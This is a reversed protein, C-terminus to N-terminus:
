VWLPLNKIRPVYQLVVLVESIIYMCTYWRMRSSSNESRLLIVQEYLLMKLAMNKEKNNRFKRDLAAFVLKWPLNRGRCFYGLCGVSLCIRYRAFIQRVFNGLTRDYVAPFHRYKWDSGM